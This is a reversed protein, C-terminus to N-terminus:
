AVTEHVQNANNFRFDGLNYPKVDMAWYDGITHGTTTGFTITIGHALTQTGGTIELNQTIRDTNQPTGGPTTTAYFIDVLDGSGGGGKGLNGKGKM